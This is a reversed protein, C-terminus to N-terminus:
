DLDELWIHYFPNEGITRFGNNQYFRVAGINHGQTVVLFRNRGAAKIRGEAARLLRGGLGRGQAWDAVALLDVHSTNDKGRLTLFGAARGDVVATLFDSCFDERFSRRLWERYLRLAGSEGFRPDYRFRSKLSLADSIAELDPYYREERFFTLDPDPEPGAEALPAKELTSKIDVLYFGRRACFRLLDPNEFSAELYLCALGRDRARELIVALSLPDLNEAVALRGIEVGFFETDWALPELRPASKM